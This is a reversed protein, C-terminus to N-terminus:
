VTLVIISVTVEQYTTIYISYLCSFSVFEPSRLWDPVTIREEEREAVRLFLQECTSPRAVVPQRRLGGFHLDVDGVSM